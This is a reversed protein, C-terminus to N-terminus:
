RPNRLRVSLRVSFNPLEYEHERERTLTSWSWTVMASTSGVTENAKAERYVGQVLPDLRLIEAVYGESIDAKDTTALAQTIDSRDLLINLTYHASPSLLVAVKPCKNSRVFTRVGLLSLLFV